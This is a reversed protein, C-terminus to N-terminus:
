NSKIASKALIKRTLIAIPGISFYIRISRRRGPPGPPHSKDKLNPNRELMERVIKSVVNGGGAMQRAELQSMHTLLTQPPKNLTGTPEFEGGEIAKGYDYQIV